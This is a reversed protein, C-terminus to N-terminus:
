QKNYYYEAMEAHGTAQIIHTDIDSQLSTFQKNLAAINAHIQDVENQKSNIKSQFPASRRQLSLLTNGHDIANNYHNTASALSVLAKVLFPIAFIGGVLAHNVIYGSTTTAAALKYSVGGTIITGAASALDGYPSSYADGKAVESDFKGKCSEIDRALKAGENLLSFLESTKTDLINSESLLAAYVADRKLSLDEAKQYHYLALRMEQDGLERNNEEAFTSPVTSTLMIVLALVISLVKKM